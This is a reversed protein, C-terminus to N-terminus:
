GGAVEKTTTTPVTKRIVTIDAVVEPYNVVLRAQKGQRAAHRFLDLLYAGRLTYSKSADKVEVVQEDTSGDYKISGAGSAPHARM